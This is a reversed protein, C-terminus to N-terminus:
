QPTALSVDEPWTTLSWAGQKPSIEYAGNAARVEVERYFLPRWSAIWGGSENKEWGVYCPGGLFVGEQGGQDLALRFPQSPISERQIRWPGSIEEPAYHLLSSWREAQDDKAYLSFFSLEARAAIEKHFRIVAPWPIGRSRWGVSQTPAVLSSDNNEPQSM